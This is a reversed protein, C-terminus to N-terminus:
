WTTKQTILGGLIPGMVAAVGFGAGLYGQYAARKHMPVIDGIIIMTLGIIPGGGLGTLFRAAILMEISTSAGCVASFVLLLLIAALLM